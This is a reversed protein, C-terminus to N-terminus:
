NPRPHTAAVSQLAKMGADTAAGRGIIPNLLAYHLRMDFAALGGAVDPTFDSIWLEALGQGFGAKNEMLSM